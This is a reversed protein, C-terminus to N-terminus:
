KVLIKWHIENKEYGDDAILKIDKIGPKTFRMSLDSTTNRKVKGNFEWSIEMDDRDFDVIDASFDVTKNIGIKFMSYEPTINMFTPKQNVDAVLMSINHKVYSENDHAVITFNLKKNNHNFYANLGQRLINPVNYLSSPTKNTHNVFAYPISFEISNNVYQYEFPFNELYIIVDDNDPDSTKVSIRITENENVYSPHTAKITPDRNTNEVIIVYDRTVIEFSDDMTINGTYEGASDYNFYIEANNGLPESIEIDVNDGDLDYVYYNMKFESGEKAYLYFTDYIEVGDVVLVPKLNNDDINTIFVTETCKDKGCCQFVISENETYEKAIYSLNKASKIFESWYFSTYRKAKEYSKQMSSSHKVYDHPIFMNINLKWGKNEIDSIDINNTVNIPNGLNDLVEIGYIIEDGDQDYCILEFENNGETIDLKEDETIIPARDVDNVYIIITRNISEKGDFMEVVVEHRGADDYSTQWKKNNGVPESIKYTIVDGDVDSNPIDLIVEEGENVTIENIKLEPLRNKDEVFVNWIKEVSNGASDEAIVKIEHQGAEEYGFVIELSDDIASKESIIKGDKYWKISLVDDEVDEFLINFEVTEGESFIIEQTLDNDNNSDDFDDLSYQIIKPVRDKYEVYITAKKIITFEGDSVTLSVNYKGSDGLITNWKGNEDLPYSFDIDLNDNDIDNINYVVEISDGEEIWYEPQLEVDPAKNKAEVVLLVKEEIIHKADSISINIVYEGRDGYDTQWEGNEDLPYSFKYYVDDGDPDIVLPKIKVFETEKVIITKLYPNDAYSIYSYSITFILSFLIIAFVAKKIKQKNNKM